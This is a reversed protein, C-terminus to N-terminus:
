RVRLSVTRSMMIRIMIDSFNSNERLHDLVDRARPRLQGDAREAVLDQRGRALIAREHEDALRARALARLQRLVEEFRAPNGRPAAAAARAGLRPAYGGRAERAADRGFTAAGQAVSLDPARASSGRRGAMARERERRSLAELKKMRLYATRKSSAADAAVATLNRVSPTRMRSAICSGASRSYECM